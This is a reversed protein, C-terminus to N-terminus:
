SQNATRLENVQASLTAIGDTASITEGEQGYLSVAIFRGGLAFMARWTESNAGPVTSTDSSHLYLLDDELVTEIIEVNAADGDRSLAARGAETTFFNELSEGDPVAGAESDISVTLVGPVFPQPADADEALAACSGLVVVSTGAGLQTTGPDVCWGDTGAVVTGDPLQIKELAENGPGIGVGCAALALYAALGPAVKFIQM